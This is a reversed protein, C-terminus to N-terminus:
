CLADGCRCFCEMVTILFKGFVAFGIVNRSLLSTM